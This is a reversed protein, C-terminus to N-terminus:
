ALEPGIHVLDYGGNPFTQVAGGSFTVEWEAFYIGATDTDAAQWSYSVQGQPANLITAPGSITQIGGLPQMRYAVTAGSINVPNGDGDELTRVYPSRTDGQKVYFDPEPM